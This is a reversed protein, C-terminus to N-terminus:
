RGSLGRPSARASRMWSPMRTCRTGDRINGFTVESGSPTGRGRITPHQAPEVRM